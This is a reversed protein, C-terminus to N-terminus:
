HLMLSTIIAKHIHACQGENM